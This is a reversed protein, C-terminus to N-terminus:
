STKNIELPIKRSAATTINRKSSGCHIPRRAFLPGSAGRTAGPGDFKLLITTSFGNAYGRALTDDSRGGAPRCQGHSGVASWSVPHAEADGMATVAVAVASGRSCLRHWQAIMRLIWGFQHKGSSFSPSISLRRLSVPEDGGAEEGTAAHPACSSHVRLEGAPRTASRRWRAYSSGGSLRCIRPLRV